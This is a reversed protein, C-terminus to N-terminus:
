GPVSHIPIKIHWLGEHNPNAEVAHIIGDAELQRTIKDKHNTFFSGVFFGVGDYELSDSDGDACTVTASTLVGFGFQGDAVNRKIM